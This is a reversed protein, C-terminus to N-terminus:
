TNPHLKGIICRKPSSHEKGLLIVLFDMDGTVYINSISMQHNDFLMPLLM